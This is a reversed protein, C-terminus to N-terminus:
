MGNLHGIGNIAPHRMGPVGTTKIVAENRVTLYAVPKGLSVMEATKKQNLHLFNKRSLPRM